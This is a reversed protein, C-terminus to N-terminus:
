QNDLQSNIFRVAVSHLSVLDQANVKRLQVRIYGGKLVDGNLVGGPSNSDRLFVAHFHEELRDFDSAILDSSQLVDSGPEPLSTIISPCELVTNALVDIAEFSKKIAFKENFVVELYWDYNIGYFRCRNIKDNHIYPIGNKFTILDNKLCSMWEPHYSYPTVFRNRVEDWTLTKAPNTVTRIFGPLPDSFFEYSAIEEYASIYENNKTDFVGYIQARGPIDSADAPYDGLYVTAKYKLDEVIAFRNIKATISIPTLGDRSLRCIVGRNTDHFYDAFNKTALSCPANGIGFDGEYYQVNNLLKDSQSVLANNNATQLVQQNIPIWGCKMEQFVRLQLDRVTMRKIIGYSRSCTDVFNSAPFNNTKNIFTDQIYAGGFRIFSPLRQEKQNDDVIYARGNGNVGSANKDTFNPDEIPIGVVNVSVNDKEYQMVNRNRIYVDGHFFTFTAPTNSIRNQNQLMGEHAMNIPDGPNLIKYEPGFEYFFETNTTNTSPTYLEVLYLGPPASAFATSRPVKLFTGSFQTTFITPDKLSAVIQVDVDYLQATPYVYPPPATKMRRILRMRDGPTYDYSLATQGWFTISNVMADMDFYMHDPDSTQIAFLMYYLFRGYNLHTTRVWKYSHAWIPPAHFISANIFPKQIQYTDTAVTSNQYGPMTVDFDTTSITEGSQTHVGDTRNFEDFYVLGLRYKSHLKWMQFVAGNDTAQFASGVEITVQLPGDFKIGETIDGYVLTDGTVLAQSGAKTPVYDWVQNVEAPPQAVGVTDNYFSYDHVVNDAIGLEDKDLTDILYCDGWQSAINQRLGIEIKVVEEDGTDIGIKIYNNVTPDADRNTTFPQIPIAYDSWGSWVSKEFDAYVFRIQFQFLKNRLNNVLRTLDSFYGYLLKGMIPSTPPKKAVLTYDMIIPNPYGTPTGFEKAKKINIKRPRTNGESWFMLDGEDDARHIIDISPIKIWPEFQTVDVANTWVINRFVPTIVGTEPNIEVIEDNNFTNDIFAYIVNRFEDAFAAICKNDGIPYAYNGIRVNGDINSAAGEEQTDSAAMRVNLGDVWDPSPLLHLETDYNLGGNTFIKIQNM